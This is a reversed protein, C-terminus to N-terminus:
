SKNKQEVTSNVKEVVDRSQGRRKDIPPRFCHRARPEYAEREGVLV